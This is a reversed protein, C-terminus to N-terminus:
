ADRRRRGVLTSAGFLGGLGGLLLLASAPLPVVTISGLAGDISIGTSVSDVQFIVAGVDTMDVGESTFESFSLFPSFAGDFINEVYTHVNGAMDYVTASFVFDGDAELVEFFFAPNTLGFTLDLGSGIVGAIGLGDTDISNLGTPAGDNGDYAVQGIGQQGTDNSFSLFGGAVTLSTSLGPIEPSTEVWLDRFGGIVPAAVESGQVAGNSDDEVKQFDDFLDITAASATSAAFISASAVVLAKLVTM